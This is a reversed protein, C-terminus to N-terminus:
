EAAVFGDRGRSLRSTPVLREGGRVWPHERARAEDEATRVDPVARFRHAGIARYPGVRGDGADASEIVPESGRSAEYRLRAADCAKRYPGLADGTEQLADAYCRECYPMLDCDRCGHLDGWRTTRLFRREPHDRLAEGLGGPRSVDGVPLELRNCPRVEGNAEIHVSRCAGCPSLGLKEEAEIPEADIGFRRYLGLAAEGSRDYRHPESSGGERFHMGESGLELTAGLSEVFREYEAIEDENFRAVPTKVLVRVGEERLWRVAQVTRKWSGPVRTVADHVEPRQSYLSIEVQFLHQAALARALERDVRLGNTFLVIMMGRQRAHAILELLDRRLTPEGGSFTLLLVGAEALEDIVRRLDETSMEGKLGQVQYCHVCVENCRDAVEITASYPRGARAYLARLREIASGSM